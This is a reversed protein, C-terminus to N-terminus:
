AVTSRKTKNEGKGSKKDGKGSKKKKKIKTAGGGGVDGSGVDEGDGGEDGRVRKGRQTEGEGVGGAGGEGGRGVEVVEDPLFVAVHVPQKTYGRGLLARTRTDYVRVSKDLSATLLLPRHPHLTISKVSGEAGRLGRNMKNARMDWQQVSGMGNGAWCTRDTHPHHRQLPPTTLPTTNHPPHSQSPPTALPPTKPPPRLTSGLGHGGFVRGGM